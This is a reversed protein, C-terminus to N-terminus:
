RDNLNRNQFSIHQSGFKGRMHQAHLALSLAPYRSRRPGVSCFTGQIQVPRIKQATDRYLLPGLVGPRKAALRGLTPHASPVTRVVHLLPALERTPWARDGSVVDM